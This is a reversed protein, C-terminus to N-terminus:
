ILAGSTGPEQVLGALLADESRALDLILTAAGSSVRGLLSRKATRGDEANLILASPEADLKDVTIKLYLQGARRAQVLAVAGGDFSREVLAGTSAAAAVPIDAAAFQNTLTRLDRALRPSAAIEARAADSLQADPDSVYAVLDAFSTRSSRPEHMLAAEAAFREAALAAVGGDADHAGGDLDNMERM